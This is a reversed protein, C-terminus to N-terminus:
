HKIFHSFHKQDNTYPELEGETLAKFWYGYKKLLEIQENTFIECSCNLPFPGKKRLYDLHEKQIVKLDDSDNIM